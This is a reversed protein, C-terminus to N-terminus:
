NCSLWGRLKTMMATTVGSLVIDYRGAAIEVGSSVSSVKIAIRGVAPNTVAAWDLQMQKLKSITGEPKVAQFKNIPSHQIPNRSAEELEPLDPLVFVADEGGAVFPEPAPSVPLVSPEPEVDPEVAVPLLKPQIDDPKPTESLMAYVAQKTRHLVTECYTQFSRCGRITKYTGDVQKGRHLIQFRRQMETVLPLCLRLTFVVGEIQSGLEDDTLSERHQVAFKLSLLGSEQSTEPPLSSKPNSEVVALSTSLM